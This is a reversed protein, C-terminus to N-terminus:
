RSAVSAFDSSGPSLPRFSPARPKMEETTTPTAEVAGAYLRAAVRPKTTMAIPPPRCVGMM